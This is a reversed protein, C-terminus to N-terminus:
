KGIIEDLFKMGLFLSALSKGDILEGARSMELAKKIPVKVLDLFEDEDKNLPSAFLDKALFVTMYENSYGATMYFGGLKVLKGAAMGTEERLERMATDVPDEGKNILGAPLELLKSESGIRYQKVFLIDGEKSIPLITVADLHDVLDYDRERGDPLEYHLEEVNFAHLKLVTKRNLLKYEGM